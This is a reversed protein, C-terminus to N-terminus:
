IAHRPERPDAPTEGWAVSEVLDGFLSSDLPMLEPSDGMLKNKYHSTVDDNTAGRM